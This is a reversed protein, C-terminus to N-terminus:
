VEGTLYAHLLRCGVLTTYNDTVSIVVICYHSILCTKRTIFLKKAYDPISNSDSSGVTFARGCPWWTEALYANFIEVPLWILLQRKGNGPNNLNSYNQILHLYNLVPYDKEYQTLTKEVINKPHITVNFRRL